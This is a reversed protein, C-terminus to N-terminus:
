MLWDSTLHWQPCSSSPWHLSRSVEARKFHLSQPLRRFLAAPIAEWCGICVCARSPPVCVFICSLWCNGTFCSSYGSCYNFSCVTALPCSFSFLVFCVFVLHLPFTLIPFAVDTYVSSRLCFSFHSLIGVTWFMWMEGGSEGAAVSMGTGREGGGCVCGRLFILLWVLVPM